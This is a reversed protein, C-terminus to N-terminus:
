GPPGPEIGPYPIKEQTKSSEESHKPHKSHYSNLDFPLPTHRVREVAELNTLMLMIPLGVHVASMKM